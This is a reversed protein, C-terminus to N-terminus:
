KQMPRIGAAISLEVAENRERFDNYDIKGIYWKNWMGVMPRKRWNDLKTFDIDNALITKIFAKEMDDQFPYDKYKVRFGDFKRRMKKHYDQNTILNDLLYDVYEAWSAFMFPLEKVNTFSSTKLTNVTNVGKVRKVIGNWIDRDVEQMYDLSKLATEHILNSVRMDNVDVGYQYMLDYLKCYPIKNDHIYKWVDTYSWDYIPYFTFQEAKKTTRKAWTIHKYTLASHM